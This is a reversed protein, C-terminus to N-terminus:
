WDVQDGYMGLVMQYVSYDNLIQCGVYNFEIM